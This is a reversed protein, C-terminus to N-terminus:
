FQAALFDLRNRKSNKKLNRVGCDKALSVEGVINKQWHNHLGPFIQSVGDELNRQDPLTKGSQFTFAQLKQQVEGSLIQL